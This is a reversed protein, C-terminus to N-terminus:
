KKRFAIDRAKDIIKIAENTLKLIDDYEPNNYWANNIGILEITSNYLANSIHKFHKKEMKIESNDESIVEKILEKLIKKTLKMTM